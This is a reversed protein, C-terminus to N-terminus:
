KDEKPQYIVVGVPNEKDGSIEKKDRWGLINKATFIAGAPNYVGKLMNNVLQDEQLAKAKKYAVSFDKHKNRWETLTDIDVGIELAFMKFLPLNAALKISSDKDLEVHKRTFFKIIEKCYKPDYKTPRGNRM